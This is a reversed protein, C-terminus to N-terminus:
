TNAKTKHMKQMDAHKYKQINQMKGWVALSYPTRIIYTPQYRPAFIQHERRGTEGWKAGNRLFAYQIYVYVYVYMYTYTYMYMNCYICMHIRM